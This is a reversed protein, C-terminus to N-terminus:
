ETEDTANEDTVGVFPVQDIMEILTEVLKDRGLKSIILNQQANALQQDAFNVQSIAQVQEQSFAEREYIRQNIAIHKEPDFTVSQKLEPAVPAPAVPAPVVPAAIAAQHPTEAVSTAAAKKRPM